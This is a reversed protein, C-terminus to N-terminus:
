DDDTFQNDFCTGCIGSILLERDNIDLNPFVQQIPTGSQWQFYLELDLEFRHSIKCFICNAEIIACNQNHTVAHPYM